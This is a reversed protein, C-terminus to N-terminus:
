GGGGRPLPNIKDQGDGDGDGDCDSDDDGEVDDDRIYSEDEDGGVEGELCNKKTLKKDSIQGCNKKTAFDVCYAVDCGAKRMIMM